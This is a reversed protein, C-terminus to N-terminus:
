VGFAVFGLRRKRDAKGELLTAIQAARADSVQLMALGTM